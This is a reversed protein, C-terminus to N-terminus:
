FATAENSDSYRMDRNKKVVACVLSNGIISAIALISTVTAIAVNALELM